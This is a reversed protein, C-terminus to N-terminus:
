PAITFTSMGILTASNKYYVRAEYNGAAFPGLTRTGNVDGYLYTWAVYGDVSAGAPAISVWDTYNGPANSFSVVINDTTTYTTKDTSVTVGGLVSFASSAALETGNALYARVEYSGPPVTNFSLTGTSAGSTYHWENFSGAAAGAPLITIWDTPDPTMGDYTVTINSSGVQASVTANGGQVSFTSSEALRNLSGKSFARAVYSGVPLTPNTFSSTGSAAGSTYQWAVYASDDAGPVYLGIWDTPTGSLQAYNINITQGVAYLSKDAAVSAANGSVTIAASTIETDNNAFYARVEYDGTALGNFNMTGNPSGTTYHWENFTNTAATSPVVTIWDTSDATFGTYTVVIQQNPAYTSNANAQVGIMTFTPSEGSHTGTGHPFARAVYDGFGGYDAFTGPLTVSGTPSGDTYTWRIYNDDTAGVRFVGVWDTRDGPLGDYSITITGARTYSTASTTVTTTAVDQAVSDVGVEEGCAAFLGVLAILAIRSTNRSHEKMEM